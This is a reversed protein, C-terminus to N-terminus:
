LIYTQLICLWFFIVLLGKTERKGVEGEIIYKHNASSHMKKLNLKGEHHLKQPNFAFDLKEFIQSSAL